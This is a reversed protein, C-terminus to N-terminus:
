TSNVALELKSTEPSFLSIYTHLLGAKHRFCIRYWMCILYEGGTSANFKIMLIEARQPLYNLQHNSWITVNTRQLSLFSPVISEFHTNSKSTLGQSILSWEITFNLNSQRMPLGQINRFIYWYKGFPVEQTTVFLHKIIVNLYLTSGVIVNWWHSHYENDMQWYRQMKMWSNAFITLM